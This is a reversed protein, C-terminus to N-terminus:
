GLLKREQDSKGSLKSFRQVQARAQELTVGRPRAEVAAKVRGRVGAFEKRIQEILGDPFPLAQNRFTM